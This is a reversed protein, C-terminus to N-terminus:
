EFWSGEKVVVPVQKNEKSDGAMVEGKINLRGAMSGPGTKCGIRLLVLPETSTAEFWYYAGAPLMIGGHTKVDTGNGEKDYFRASGQMVVFTHDENTHTHLGNEGGSAYVKLRVVMNPSKAMVQDSRGQELMQAKLQYFSAEAPATADEFNRVSSGMVRADDASMSREEQTTAEPADSLADPRIVVSCRGAASM